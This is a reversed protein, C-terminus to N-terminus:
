VDKKEKNEKDKYRDQARLMDFFDKLVIFVGLGIGAIAFIMFFIVHSPAASLDM